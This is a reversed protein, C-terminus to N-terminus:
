SFNKGLAAVAACASNLCGAARSNRLPRKTSSSPGVVLGANSPKRHLFGKVEGLRADQETSHDSATVEGKLLEILRGRAPFGVGFGEAQVVGLVLLGLVSVGKTVWVGAFGDLGDIGTIESWGM